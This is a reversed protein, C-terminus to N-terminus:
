SFNSKNVVKEEVQDSVRYIYMYLIVHQLYLKNDNFVRIRTGYLSHVTVKELKM